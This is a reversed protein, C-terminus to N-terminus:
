RFQVRKTHASNTPGGVLVQGVPRGTDAEFIQALSAPMSPTSQRYLAKLHEDAEIADKAPKAESLWFFIM